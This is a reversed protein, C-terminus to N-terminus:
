MKRRLDFTANGGFKGDKFNSWRQIVHNDDIWEFELGGMFGHEDSSYNSISELEFVIHKPSIQTSVMRPQNGGGCYHTAVVRAGDLHYMNVMEHETGAGMVEHVASGAATISFESTCPSNNYERFVGEWKGKLSQLRKLAAVSQEDAPAVRRARGPGTSTTQCAILTFVLAASVSAIKM